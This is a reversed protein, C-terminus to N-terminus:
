ILKFWMYLYLAVAIMCRLTGNDLFIFKCLVEYNQNYLHQVFKKLLYQLYKLLSKTQTPDKCYSTPQLNYFWLVYKHVLNSCYSLVFILISVSRLDNDENLLKGGDVDVM